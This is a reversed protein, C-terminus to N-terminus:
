SSQSSLDFDAVNKIKLKFRDKTHTYWGPSEMRGILDLAAADIYCRQDNIVADDDVHVGIVNALLLVGATDLDITERMRCELTVPSRAIRPIDIKNCMLTDVGAAKLEDVESTFATATDNMTEALFSPVLNIAFDPHKRINHLSDKALGNREGMGIAVVPPHGGFFNFLSYPAANYREEASRTIVWAIPRPTVCSSLLKYSRELDLDTIDFFM